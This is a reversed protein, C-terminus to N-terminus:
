TLVAMSYPIAVAKQEAYTNGEIALSSQITKIQNERRLNIPVPILKAGSLVGIEYLIAKAKCLIVSTIQFPPQQTM